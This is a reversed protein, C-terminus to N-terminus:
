LRFESMMNVSETESVKLGDVKYHLSPCSAEERSRVLENNSLSSVIHSGSCEVM